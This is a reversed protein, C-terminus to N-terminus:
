DDRGGPMSKRMEEIGANWCKPMEANRKNGCRPMTRLMEADGCKRMEGARRAEAGGRSIM